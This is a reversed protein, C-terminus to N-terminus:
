SKFRFNYNSKVVFQIQTQSYIVSVKKWELIKMRFLLNVFVLHTGKKVFAVSLLHVRIQRFLMYITFRNTMEWVFSKYHFGNFHM